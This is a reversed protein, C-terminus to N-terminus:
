GVLDLSIIQRLLDSFTNIFFWLIFLKQKHNEDEEEEDYERKISIFFQYYYLQKNWMKIQNHMFIAIKIWVSYFYALSKM